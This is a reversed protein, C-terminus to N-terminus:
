SSNARLIVIIGVLIILDDENDAIEVDYNSAWSFWRKSAVAVEVEDRRFIIQRGTYNREVVYNTGPVTINFVEKLLTFPDQKLLGFYQGARYIEWTTPYSVMQHKTFALENGAMDYFAVSDKFTFAKGKVWFVDNGVGDKIYFAGGLTFLKQKILYRM